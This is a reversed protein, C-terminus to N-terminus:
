KLFRSKNAMCTGCRSKGRIVKNTMAVKKFDINKTNNNCKLCYTLMNKYHPYYANLLIKQLSLYQAM